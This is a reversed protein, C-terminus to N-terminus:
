FEGENIPVANASGDNKQEMGIPRKRRRMEEEEEKRREEEKRKRQQERLELIRRPLNLNRGIPRTSVQGDPQTSLFDEEDDIEKKVNVVLLPQLPPPPLFEVPEGQKMNAIVIPLAQLPAPTVTAAKDLSDM